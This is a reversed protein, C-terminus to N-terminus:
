GNALAWIIALLWINGNFWFRSSNNKDFSGGSKGEKEKPIHLFSFSIILVIGVFAAIGLIINDWKVTQGIIGVLNASVVTGFPVATNFIGMAVGINKEDFFMTVLLPALVVLATAGIGAVLRFALLSVFSKSLSFAILGLIMTSLAVIIIAKKDFRNALYAIFFPLFIGPIAYAGMLLGAQSTSFAIDKGIENFLPPLSQLSISFSLMLLFTICLIIWKYSDRKVLDM